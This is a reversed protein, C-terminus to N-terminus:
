ISPRPRQTLSPMVTRETWSRLHICMRPSLPPLSHPHVCFRSSPHHMRDARILFPKHNRRARESRVQSPDMGFFDHAELLKVTRAHTDDSTMIAFPLKVGPAACKAQMRAPM